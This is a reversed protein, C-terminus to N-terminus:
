IITTIELTATASATYAFASLTDDEGGASFSLQVGPAIPTGLWVGSTTGSNYVSVSRAGAAVTGAAVAQIYTPTRVVATFKADISTLIVNSAACCAELDDTNLNISEATIEIDATNDRIEILLANTDPCCNLLTNDAICELLRLTNIQYPFNNGKNGNDKTNGISM